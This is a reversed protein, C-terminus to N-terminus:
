TVLYEASHVHGDRILNTIEIQTWPNELEGIPIWYPGTSEVETVSKVCPSYVLMGGRNSEKVIFKKGTETGVLATADVPIYRGGTVGM